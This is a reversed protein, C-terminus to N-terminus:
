FVVVGELVAGGDKRGIDIDSSRSIPFTPAFFTLMDWKSTTDHQLYPEARNVNCRGGTFACM